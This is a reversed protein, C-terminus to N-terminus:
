MFLSPLARKLTSVMKPAEVDMVYDPIWKNDKEGMVDRVHNGLLRRMTFSAGEERSFTCDAYASARENLTNIFAESYNGPGTFDERNEQMTNAFSLAFATVFEAREEDNFKEYVLRDVISVMFFCAEGMADLRQSQSQTEFGENELNLIFESAVKWGTFALAGAIEAPTRVKDKKNWKAKVRVM